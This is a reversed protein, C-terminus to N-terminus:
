TWKAGLNENKNFRKLKEFAEIIIKQGNIKFNENLIKLYKKRLIKM